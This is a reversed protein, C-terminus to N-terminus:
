SNRLGTWKYIITKLEDLTFPKALYDNMGAMLCVERENVFAHATLAIVPLNKFYTQARIQKTTEYGDMSPMSVDMFVLDFAEHQLQQLAEAGSSAVKAQMGIGNLLEQGVFRNLEDDDVLLIKVPM